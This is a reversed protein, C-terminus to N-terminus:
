CLAKQRKIKLGVRSNTPAFDLTDDIVQGWYAIRDSNLQEKVGTEEKLVEAVNQM